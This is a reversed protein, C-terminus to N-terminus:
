RRSIGPVCLGRLLRVLERVPPPEIEEDGDVTRAVPAIIIAEISLAQDEGDADVRLHKPSPREAPWCSPRGIHM